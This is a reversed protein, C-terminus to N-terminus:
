RRPPNSINEELPVIEGLFLQVGDQLDAPLLGPLSLGVRSFYTLVVHGKPVQRKLGLFDREILELFGDELLLPQIVQVEVEPQTLDHNGFAHQFRRVDDLEQPALSLLDHEARNTIEVVVNDPVLFALSILTALTLRVQ